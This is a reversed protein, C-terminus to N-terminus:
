PPPASGPTTTWTGPCPRPSPTGTTSRSSRTTTARARMGSCWADVHTVKGIYGNRVLEVARACESSSRQQTGYQFIVNNRAVAKRLEWAWAMSVGLPKEVYMDKKAEAAHYALPVHWHDPTGVVVADIDMPTWGAQDFCFDIAPVLFASHGRPDIRSTSAIVQRDETLAVSSAPTSTTMCLVRM